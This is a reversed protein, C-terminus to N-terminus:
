ELLRGKELVKLTTASFHYKRGDLSFYKYKKKDFVLKEFEEKKAALILNKIKYKTIGTKIEPLGKFQRKGLYYPYQRLSSDASHLILTPIEIQGSLWEDKGKVYGLIKNGRKVVVRLLTLDINRQKKSQKKPSVFPIELPDLAKLFTQCNERVPCILCDAKRAQCFTRGLDMLAENLNRPGWAELDKLIKKEEFLRTIKKQLKAGKEERLGFIRALVREINADVALARQNAGIALLASATYHGIGPIGVLAALELPFEGAYNDKLSLVAKRLNRARRYYGLGQWAKTIQEESADALSEIDPYEELFRDFHKIVTGVTTQQLMIESVLTRYLSRNQRWPLYAYEAESWNILKEFM